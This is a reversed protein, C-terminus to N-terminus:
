EDSDENNEELNGEDNGDSSSDPNEELQAEDALFTEDVVPVNAQAEPSVTGTLNFEEERKFLELTDIAKKLQPDSYANRLEFNLTGLSKEEEGGIKIEVDPVIGIGNYNPSKPPNYKAVTLRIASGDNLKNLIQMTGKGFTTSGVIKAKEYDRLVVAFLEAASATNGNVVVTMPINIENADSTLEEKRGEYEVTVIVGSPLLKNLISVVSELTGGSNDRVDFILGSAGQSRLSNVNDIFQKDTNENFDTIKIYGNSDLMKSYVTPVEYERITIDITTDQTGHRYTVTIKTGAEGKLINEAEKYTSDNTIDIDNVKMILDGEVLGVDAAPSNKNVEEVLMFNSEGVSTKAGIGTIKGSLSDSFLKYEEVSMYGSYPDQLGNLYGKAMNDNLVAEDIIGAYHQRVIHDIEAVKEYMAEREAISGVRSNFMQMSFVMTMSFVVAATIAMLTITLGKPV